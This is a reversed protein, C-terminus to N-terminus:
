SAKLKKSFYESATASHAIVLSCLGTNEELLKVKSKLDCKEDFSWGSILTSAFVVQIAETKEKEFVARQVKDEMIEAEEGMEAYLIQTELKAQAVSKAQIGTVMFYHGTKEEGRLLAMKSSKENLTKTYFDELKM